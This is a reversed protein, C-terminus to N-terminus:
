LFIGSPEAFNSGHGTYSPALQEWMRALSQYSIKRIKVTRTSAFHFRATEIRMRRMLLLTSNKKKYKSAM